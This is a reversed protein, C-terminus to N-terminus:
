IKKLEYDVGEVDTLDTIVSPVNDWIHDTIIEFQLVHGYKRKGHKINIAKLPKFSYVDIGGNNIINSWEKRIYKELNILWNQTIERGNINSSFGRIIVREVEGYGFKSYRSDDTKKVFNALSEGIKKDMNLFSIMFFEQVTNEIDEDARFCVAMDLGNISTILNRKDEESIM